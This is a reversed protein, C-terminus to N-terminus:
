GGFLASTALGMGAGVLGGSLGNKAINGLTKLSFLKGGKLTHAMASEQSNANWMKSFINNKSNRYRRNMRQEDRIMGLKLGRTAKNDRMLKTAGFSAGAGAELAGSALGETAGTLFGNTKTNLNGNKDRSEIPPLMKNTLYGSGMMTAAGVGAGALRSGSGRVGNIAGRGVMGGLGGMIGNTALEVDVFGEKLLMAKARRKKEINKQHNYEGGMAGIVGGAVLNGVIHKRKKLGMAKESLGSILSGSLAGSAMPDLSQQSKGYAADAILTERKVDDYKVGNQAPTTGLFAYKLLKSSM